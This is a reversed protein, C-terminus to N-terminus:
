RGDPEHHFARFAQIRCIRPRSNGVNRCDCVVLKADGILHGGGTPEKPQPLLLAGTLKGSDVNLHLGFGLGSSSLDWRRGSFWPTPTGPHKITPDDLCHNNRATFDSSRQRHDHCCCNPDHFPTDRDTRGDVHEGSLIDRHAPSHLFRCSRRPHFVAEHKGSMMDFRRTPHSRVSQPCSHYFLPM